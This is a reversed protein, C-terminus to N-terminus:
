PGASGSPPHASVGGQMPSSPGDPPAAPERLTPQAPEAAAHRPSPPPPLRAPEPRRPTTAVDDVTRSRSPRAAPPRAVTDPAAPRPPPPAARRPMHLVPPPPPSPPRGRSERRVRVPPPCAPHGHDRLRDDPGFVVRTRCGTFVPERVYVTTRTETYVPSTESTYVTTSAPVSVTTVPTAVYGVQEPAPGTYSATTAGAFAAGDAVFPLLERALFVANPVFAYQEWGTVANTVGISAFFANNPPLPAWGSHTPTLRWDVWAPSWQTGPVWLWGFEETEFWRGFHFAIAGWPYVSTWFWNAEARTWNGAHLYPRWGPAQQMAAPQWAWATGGLRIWTGDAKLEDFFPPLGDDAARAVFALCSLLVLLIRKLGNM